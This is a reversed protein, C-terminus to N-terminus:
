LYSECVGVCIVSCECERGNALYEPLVYDTPM